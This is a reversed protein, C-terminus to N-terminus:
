ARDGWRRIFRLREFERFTKREHRLIHRLLGIRAVVDYTIEGNGGSWPDISTIVFRRNRRYDELDDGVHLESM